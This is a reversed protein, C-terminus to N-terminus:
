GFVEHWEDATADLGGPDANPFLPLLAAIDDDVSAAAFDLSCGDLDDRAPADPTV